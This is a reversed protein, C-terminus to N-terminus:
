LDIRYVEGATGSFLAAKESPSCHATIRKFANWLAAYSCTGKDVPFNSEFMCRQPGFAEICAEIYPKWAQALEESSPPRAQRHFDFGATHMGLGGLKIRVNPCGAVAQISARWATFVEDRKGAYPGIGLPGGCHDLVLTTDPFARALDLFEDLQTHVLWADFSLGLRSLSAFGARFAPDLLLGPPPNASTARLGSAHWASVNRIGRFRGGAAAIHAELVAQARSGLRLDVNGVIAACARTPGFHGSASMAAVGNVFETEGLSKFEVPASDRYMTRCEVFVSAVVNHGTDTDLLLEPLFYPIGAHFWLHHHPDIIPLTPELAAERHLTLWDPRVTLFDDPLRSLDAPSTSM